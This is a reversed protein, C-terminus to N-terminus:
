KYYFVKQLIFYEKDLESTMLCMIIYLFRIMEDRIFSWVLEIM